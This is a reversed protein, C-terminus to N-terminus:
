LMEFKLPQDESVLENLVEMAYDIKAILIPKAMPYPVLAVVDDYLTILQYM